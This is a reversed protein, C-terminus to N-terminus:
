VNKEIFNISIIRQADFKEQKVVNLPNEDDFKVLCFVPFFTITTFVVNWGSARFGSMWKSFIVTQCCETAM